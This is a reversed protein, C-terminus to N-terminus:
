FAGTEMSDILDLVAAATADTDLLEIPRAQLLTPHPQDFFALLDERLVFGELRSLAHDLRILRQTMREGPNGGGEWRAITSWSVGLFQGFREQTLPKDPDLALRHRLQKIDGKNPKRERNEIRM